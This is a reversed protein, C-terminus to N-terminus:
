ARPTRPRGRNMTPRSPARLENETTVAFRGQLLNAVEARTLAEYKGPSGRGRHHTSRGVQIMGIAPDDLFRNWESYNGSWLRVLVPITGRQKSSPALRILRGQGGAVAAYLPPWVEPQRHLDLTLYWDALGKATRALLEPDSVGRWRKPVSM